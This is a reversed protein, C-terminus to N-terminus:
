RWCCWRPTTSIPIFSTPSNSPGARLNPTRAAQHELRGKAPGRQQDALRGRADAAPRRESRGRGDRLRLHRHGLDAVRVAPFHLPRRDRDAAIRLPPHSGRPGSPGACLGACGAGHHLVDHGSLDRGLRRHPAHADPDLAGSRPHRRRSDARQRAEGLGQVRPGPSPVARETGLAQAAGPKRGAAAARGPQVRGSRAPQCRAGARHLAAGSDVADVLVDRLARQGAADRDGAAGLARAQASVARVPQPQDQRLQQGGAPRRTGSHAPAGRADADSEPPIGALKLACYAKITASVDSPGGAYINFGGDPM